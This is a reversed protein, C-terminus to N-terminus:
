IDCDACRYFGLELNLHAFPRARFGSRKDAHLAIQGLVHSLHPALCRSVRVVAHMDDVLEDGADKGAFHIGDPALGLKWKLTEPEFEIQGLM